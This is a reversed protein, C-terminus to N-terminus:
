YEKKIVKKQEPQNPRLKAEKITEPNNYILLILSAIYTTYFAM